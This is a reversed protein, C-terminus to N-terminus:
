VGSSSVSSRSLPPPDVTNGIFAPLSVLFPPLSCVEILSISVSSVAEVKVQKLDKIEEILLGVATRLDNIDHKLADVDRRLPALIHTAPPVEATASSTQDVEAM